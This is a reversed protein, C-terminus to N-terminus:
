PSLMKSRPLIRTVAAYVRKVVADAPVEPRELHEIESAHYENGRRWEIVYTFGDFMTWSREVRPPLSLLGVHIADKWSREIMRPSVDIAEVTLTDASIIRAGQSVDGVHAGCRRRARTVYDRVTAESATDGVPIPIQISCRVERALLATWEGHERRLIVGQTETLGYGGWVRLEVYGPSDPRERLDGLVARRSLSRTGALLSPDPPESLM